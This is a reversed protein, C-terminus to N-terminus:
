WPSSILANVEIYPCFDLWGHSTAFFILERTADEGAHIIPQGHSVLGPNEIRAEEFRTVNRRTCYTSMCQYFIPRFIMCVRNSGFLPTQCNPHEFYAFEVISYSQIPTPEPIPILKLHAIRRKVM